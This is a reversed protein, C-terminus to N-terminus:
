LFQGNSVAIDVTNGPGPVLANVLWTNLGCNQFEGLTYTGVLRGGESLDFGVGPVTGVPITVPQRTRCQSGAFTPFGLVKVNRLQVDYTATGTVSAIDGALDIRGRVPAREVFVVDASVPLLGVAKFETRTPPLPLSGTFDGTDVDLDTRLTTPGLAIQSGTKAITSTGVADYQIPVITEAHAAAPVLALATAAGLVVLRRGWPAHATM